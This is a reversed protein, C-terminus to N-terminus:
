RPWPEWPMPAKLAPIIGELRTLEFAAELAEDDDVAKPNACPARRLPERPDPRHGPLGLRRFCFLTGRDTGDENQM